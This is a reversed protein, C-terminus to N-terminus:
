HSARFLSLDIEDHIRTAISIVSQAFSGEGRELLLTWADSEMTWNRPVNMGEDVYCWWPWCGESEAEADVEADVEPYIQCMAKAIAPFVDHHFKENTENTLCIGYALNRYDSTEFEWCLKFDDGEKFLMSFSAYKSGSRLADNMDVNIGFPSLQQRLYLIFDKWLREKVQRMNQAILFAASLNQPSAVLKETLESQLEMATEGNIDERIFKLLADVFCRVAPAEVRLACDSLWRELQFFTIPKVYNKIEDSSQSHFTFESMENNCLYILSWGIGRRQAEAALWHAYDHLQDKQDIAWPKNEIGTLENQDVILIDIRRSGSITYETFVQAKKDPVFNEPKEILQYFSSIFLDGQAHSEDPRLLFALCKSLTNENIHFFRFLNFDSAIRSSYRKKAQQYGEQLLVTSRLLERIHEWEDITEM